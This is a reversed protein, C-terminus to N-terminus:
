DFEQSRAKSFPAGIFLPRPHFGRETSLVMGQLFFSWKQIPFNWLFHSAGQIFFLYVPPLLVLIFLGSQTNFFRNSTFTVCFVSAGTLVFIENRLWFCNENGFGQKPICQSRNMMM